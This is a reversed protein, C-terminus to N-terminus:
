YRLMNGECISILALHGSLQCGIVELSAYFVLETLVLFGTGIESLHLVCHVPFM